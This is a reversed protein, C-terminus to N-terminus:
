APRDGTRSRVLDAIDAITSFHEFDLEHARLEIDYEEELVQFIGKAGYSRRSFLEYARRQQEPSKRPRAM